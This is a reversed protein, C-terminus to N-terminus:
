KTRRRGMLDEIIDDIVVMGLLENDKGVVPVSLLNYKSILEALIDLRDEDHVLIHKKNM